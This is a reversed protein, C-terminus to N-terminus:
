SLLLYLLYFLTVCLGICIFLMGFSIGASIIEDNKRNEYFKSSLVRRKHYKNENIESFVNRNLFKIVAPFLGAAFGSVAKVALMLYKWVFKVTFDAFRALKGAFWLIFKWIYKLSNEAVFRIAEFLKKCFVCIFPRYILEELDLRKPWCDIYEIDDEGKFMNVFFEKASIGTKRKVLLIRILVFFVIGFSISVLAGKILEPSFIHIGQLIEVQEENLGFTNFRSMFVAIRNIFLKPFIGLIIILVAPMIVSLFSKKSIHVDTNKQLVEKSPADMFVAFFIKMMYSFTMGGSILFLWEIVKFMTKFSGAVGIFEVIGEHILTKSIYGSLLPFGSIGLAGILFVAKLLKLKRGFGRIENLNLKHTNMYVIGASLFLTLKFLSHNIMYLISGSIALTCEEKLLPCLGIGIVIFGIQSVSSCALTRKLDISFVALVAGTLMTIVGLIVITLGFEFSECFIELCLILVGFVGSKTLVGSLLASAPAPAVPHAKPLWIHLPFMGAKAGFGFLVLVGATYLKRISESDSSSLLESAMAKLKMYDLTGLLGNIMFLGMLMVLGGIVAVALYTEAAKLSEPKETHAVFAYSALSMLEFFCFTTFLDASLFVGMTGCLTLFCFVYYRNLNNGKGFYEDSLMISATWMFATILAYVTRFGDIRFSLGLSVASSLKFTPEQPLLLLIVLLADEAIISILAALSAKKCCGTFVSCLLPFLLLILIWFNGTM